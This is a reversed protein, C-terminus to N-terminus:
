WTVNWAAASDLEKSNSVMFRIIALMHHLPLLSCFCIMGLSVFDPLLDTKGSGILVDFHSFTSVQM